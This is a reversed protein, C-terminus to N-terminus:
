VGKVLTPFARVRAEIHQVDGVEPERQQIFRQRRGPAAVGVLVGPDPRLGHFGIVAKDEDGTLVVM